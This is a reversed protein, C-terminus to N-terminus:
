EFVLNSMRVPRARQAVSSVGWAAAGVVLPLGVLMVALQIWPMTFQEEVTRTVAWLPILGTPIALVVGTLTLVAAKVGAMRRMTSPKAGVAVLVDREDRSETAALSLGITVVLLILATAVGVIVLQAIRVPERNPLREWDLSWGEITQARPADRYVSSLSTGGDVDPVPVEDLRRQQARTIPEGTRVIGGREVIGLGLSDALDETIMLTDPGIVVGADDQILNGDADVMMRQMYERTAAETTIREGQAALVVGVEAPVTESGFSYWQLALAGTRRLAARDIDSLEYLDQVAEDGVLVTDYAGIGLENANNGYAEDPDRADFTAERRVSWSSGPLVDLVGQRLEAPVEVAPRTLPGRGEDFNVSEGYPRVVVADDPVLVSRDEDDSASLLLSSGATAFAGTVGIATVIAASRARTRGMSRGAFRWSRGARAALRSMADIALPSCCCMGAMVMVGGLVGAAAAANGGGESGAALVLLLVGFGFTVAGIPVLRVPVKGLPRRGALATLTPVKAASRAPVYAAVVAAAIGTLGIVVLDRPVYQFSPLDRAYLREITSRGFVGILGAGTLGLAVGALGTWFGQLGLARGILRQPAGNASLQGVMVLQRRASTAFAASIVIGVAALAIIGAVWGWALATTDSGREADGVDDVIEGVSPYRTRITRVLEQREVRDTDPLDIITTRGIAAKRFQERPFDSFVIVNERHDVSPRGTGAVTWSGRPYELSLTDGIDLGYEDLLHRSVWAEGAQPVEAPELGLPEAGEGPTSDFQLLTAPLTDDGQQRIPLYLGGIVRTVISGEPLMSEIGRLAASDKGAVAGQAVLDAGAGYQLSLQRGYSDDVTHAYVSGLTMGMIPVAILLAVLVTRGPRRQVERRAFRLALRWRAPALGGGIM